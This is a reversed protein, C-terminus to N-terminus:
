VRKMSRVAKCQALYESSKLITTASSMKRRDLDLLLVLLDKLEKPADMDKLQQELPAIQLLPKMDRAKAFMEQLPIDMLTKGEVLEPIWNPYLCMLRAIVEADPYYTGLPLEYMFVDEKFPKLLTIGLAWIDSCHFYGKGELVEPAASGCAGRLGDSFGDYTACGLDGLKVKFVGPGPFDILINDAKIDTHVRHNSEFPVLSQLIGTVIAEFLIIDKKYKKLNIEYLNAEMWGLALYPPPNSIGKHRAESMAEDGVTTIVDFFLGYLNARHSIPSQTSM